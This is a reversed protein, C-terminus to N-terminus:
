RSGGQNITDEGLVWRLACLLTGNHNFAFAVEDFAEGDQTLRGLQKEMALNQSELKMVLAAVEAEARM